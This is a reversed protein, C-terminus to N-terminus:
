LVLVGPPPPEAQFGHKRAIISATEFDVTDEPSKFLGLEMLDAVVKFPKLELAGALDRVMMPDLLYVTQGAKSPASTKAMSEKSSTSMFWRAAEDPMLVMEVDGVLVACENVPLARAKAALFCGQVPSSNGPRRMASLFHRILERM